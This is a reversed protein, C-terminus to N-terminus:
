AVAWEAERPMCFTDVEAPNVANPSLRVPKTVPERELIGAALARCERWRHRAALFLLKATWKEARARDGALIFPIALEFSWSLVSATVSNSNIQSRWAGAELDAATAEIIVARHAYGRLRILERTFREREVGCCAVFDALSKREIAICHECGLVSYDGVDLSAAQSRLPSLVYPLQERSDVLAIVHEPKFEAPLKM